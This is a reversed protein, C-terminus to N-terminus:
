TTHTRRNWHPAAFHALGQAVRQAAICCSKQRTASFEAIFSLLQRIFLVSRSLAIIFTM